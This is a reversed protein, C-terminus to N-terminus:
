QSRRVNTLPHKGRTQMALPLRRNATAAFLSDERANTPWGSTGLSPACSPICSPQILPMTQTAARWRRARRHAIAYTPLELAPLARRRYHLARSKWCPGARRSIASSGPRPPSSSEQVLWGTLRLHRRPIVGLISIPLAQAYDLLSSSLRTRIAFGRSKVTGSQNSSAPSATRCDELVGHTTTRAESSM